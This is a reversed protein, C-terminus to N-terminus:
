LCSATSSHEIIESFRGARLMCSKNSLTMGNSPDANRDGDIKLLCGRRGNNDVAVVTGSAAEAASKGAKMESRM